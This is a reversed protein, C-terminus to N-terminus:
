FYITSTGFYIHIFVWIDLWVKWRALIKRLVVKCFKSALKSVHLKTSDNSNVLYYCMRESSIDNYKITESRLHKNIKKKTHHVKRSSSVNYQIFVAFKSIPSTNWNSPVSLAIRSPCSKVGLMCSLHRVTKKYIWIRPISHSICFEVLLKRLM